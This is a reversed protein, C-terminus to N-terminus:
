GGGVGIAVNFGSGGVFAVLAPAYVPRVAVVMRGPAWVWGGGVYAWRGYHFPAFGWPAEDIWTWGWPEVWAWHGTHYPAWGAEVQRPYWVAGYNPAQQWAGYDDLDEYGIVTPPLYRASALHEEHNDRQSSWNDFQDPGPAVEVDDALQDTGSLNVSNGPNLTFAQGGGTVEAQGSRVVVYSTNGNGDVNFRYIGDRLLTVAANPTDVEFVQNTGLNRTRFYMQGESLKIQATQDNLNLLGFRTQPGMRMVAIDMHMEAQAGDDTYLYDGTTFPRNVVAPAWDDVGAPEMSVNGQMYNLRAVRAPPDEEQAFAGVAFLGCITAGVAIKTIKKKFAHVMAPAEGPLMSTATGQVTVLYGPM